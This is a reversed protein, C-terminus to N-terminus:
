KRDIDLIRGEKAMDALLSKPLGQQAIDYATDGKAAIDDLGDERDTEYKNLALYVTDAVVRNVKYLTYHENKLKIHYVDNPKPSLILRSVRSATQKGDFYGFIAIIILVGIGSFTWVPIKTQAKLNDYSLRLSAPMEKLKLVQRCNLCQSVGTKGIPFFPIWFVHAWRQFVNMQISNATNCNPCSDTTIENKLLKGRTGYVIM